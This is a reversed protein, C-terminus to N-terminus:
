KQEVSLAIEKIVHSDPLTLLQQEAIRACVIEARGQLLHDAWEAEAKGRAKDWVEDQAPDKVLQARVMVEQCLLDGKM